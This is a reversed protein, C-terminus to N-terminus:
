VKARGIQRGKWHKRILDLHGWSLHDKAGFDRMVNKAMIPAGRTAYSNEFHPMGHKLITKLFTNVTWNPRTIGDWALRLSPRLPTSFGSRINNGRNALVATDVTLVLTGLDSSCVDSSWDSIRLDYATM